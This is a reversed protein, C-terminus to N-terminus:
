TKHKKKKKSYLEDLVAHRQVCYFNMEILQKFM